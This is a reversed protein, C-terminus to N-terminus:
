KDVVRTGAPCSLLCVRIEHKFVNLGSSMPFYFFFLFFVTQKHTLSMKADTSGKKQM